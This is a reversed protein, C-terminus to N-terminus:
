VTTNILSMTARPTEKKGQKKYGGLRSSRETAIMEFTKQITDLSETLLVQNAYNIKSLDNIESRLKNRLDTVTRKHEAPIHDIVRLLSAHPATTTATNCIADCLELRKEELDAISCICDDYKRSAAQIRDLASGKVAQNMDHATTILHKHADLEKELILILQELNNNM